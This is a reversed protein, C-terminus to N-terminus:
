SASPGAVGSCALRSRALPHLRVHLAPVDACSPRRLGLLPHTAPLQSWPSTIKMIAIRDDHDCQPDHSARCSAGAVRFSSSAWPLIATRLMDFSARVLSPLSARFGFWRLGGNRHTSDVCCFWEGSRLLRHFHDALIRPRVARPDPRLSFADAVKRQSCVQSPLKFGM